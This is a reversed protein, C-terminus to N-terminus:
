QELATAMNKIAGSHVAEMFVDGLPLSAQLAKKWFALREDQDEMTEWDRRSPIRNGPLHDLIGPSPRVVVLRDTLEEGIRRWPAFRDMWQPIIRGPHTILLIMGGGPCPRLCSNIHYDLVGGDQYVGKPADPIPQGAAVKFPVSGSALMAGEINRGSLPVLSAPFGAERAQAPPDPPSHFVVRELMLRCAAPHLLSLLFTPIYILRDMGEVMRRHRVTTVALRLGNEGRALKEREEKGVPLLRALARVLEDRVQTPSIPQDFQMSMYTKQFLRIASSPDEQALAAFRWAGASAGWLWLGPSRNLWRDDAIARDIGAFVIWRPGTAPGAVTGIDEPRLGSDRIRDLAKPGASVHLLKKWDTTVISYLLKARM